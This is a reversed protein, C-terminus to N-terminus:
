SKKSTEVISSMEGTSLQNLTFPLCQKIMVYLIVGVSWSDWVLSLNRDLPPSYETTQGLVPLEEKLLKLQRSFGFDIVKVSQDHKRILVNECKLDGHVVMQSHCYSIASCLQYFLQQIQKTNPTYKAVYSSLDDGDVYEICSIFHHDEFFTCELQVINPHNLMRLLQSESLILQEIDEDKHGASTYLRGISDRDVIKMAVQHNEDDRATAIRVVGSAGKGLIRGVKWSDIATRFDKDYNM